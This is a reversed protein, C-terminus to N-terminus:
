DVLSDILEDIKRFIKSNDEREYGALKERYEDLNSLFLGIKGRDLEEWYKGYGLKDLYYANLIQEFQKKVPIALYPKGLYLAETILTFGATAIVAKCDALDKLFKEQSSKKFVINGDTDDRDMGYVVFKGDINKLLDIINEYQFSLYVLIYDRSQPKIELVEKRLIPPFLFTKPNTIKANHFTIVLCAKSNFIISNVVAKAVLADKEYKKPYELKTNNIRHQGISIIM